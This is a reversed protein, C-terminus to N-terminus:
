AFSIAKQLQSMSLRLSMISVLLVNQDPWLLVEQYFKHSNPTYKCYRSFVRQELFEQLSLLVRHLVIIVRDLLTIFYEENLLLIRRLEAQYAPCSGPIEM